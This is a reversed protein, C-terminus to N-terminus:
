LFKRLQLVYERYAKLLALCIVNLKEQKQYLSNKLVTKDTTKKRLYEFDRFAQLLEGELGDVKTEAKLLEYKDPM